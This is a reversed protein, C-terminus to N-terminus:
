IPHPPSNAAPADLNGDCTASGDAGSGSESLIEERVFIVADNPIAGSRPSRFVVDPRDSDFVYFIYMPRPEEGTDYTPDVGDLVLMVCATKKWADSIEVPAPMEECDFAGTFHFHSLKREPSVVFEFIAGFV